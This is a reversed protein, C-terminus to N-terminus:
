PRTKLSQRTKAARERLKAEIDRKQEDLKAHMLFTMALDAFSKSVALFATAASLPGMPDDNTAERAAGRLLENINASSRLRNAMDAADAQASQAEDILKDLEDRSVTKLKPM